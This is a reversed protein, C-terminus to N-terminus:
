LESDCHGPRQLRSRNFDGQPHPLLRGLGTDEGWLEPIKFIGIVQEAM